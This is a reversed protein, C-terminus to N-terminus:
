EAAKAEALAEQMAAQIRPVLSRAQQQSMAMVKQMVQPMKDLMAQGAPSRYFAIQGEVEEQTFVDRYIDLLQPKMRDWGMEERMVAAFKAPFKEFARQQAPTLQEHKIMDAMMVHMSQEMGASVSEMLSKSRAVDLLEEITADSAPAAAAHLSLCALALVLATKLTKM